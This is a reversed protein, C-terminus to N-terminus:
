ASVTAFPSHTIFGTAENSGVPCWSSNLISHSSLHSKSLCTTYSSYHWIDKRLFYSLWSLQWRQWMTKVGQDWGRTWLSRRGGWCSRGEQWHCHKESCWISIGWPCLICSKLTSVCDDFSYKRLSLSLSLSLSLVICQWIFLILSKSNVKYFCAHARFFMWPWHGANCDLYFVITNM